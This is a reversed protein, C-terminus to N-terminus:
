TASRLMGVQTTLVDARSQRLNAATEIVVAALDHAIDLARDPDSDRVAIGIRASRRANDDEDDYVITHTAVKRTIAVTVLASLLIVPIPRIRTRRRIRQLEAVMGRRTPQESEYWQDGNSSM